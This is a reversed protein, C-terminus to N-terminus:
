LDVLVDKGLYAGEAVGRSKLWITGNPAYVNAKVTHRLGLIAVPMEDPSGNAGNVYLVIDRATISAGAEPAITPNTGSDLRGNIIIETPAQCILQTHNGLVLSEMHYTGGTLILVAKTKLNVSGYSGADLTLTEQTAMDIDQTGPLPTPFTPLVVNLPLTLPTNEDGRVTGGFNGLYNCFVDDVSSGSKIKIKDAYISVDDSFNVNKSLVVEEAGELYPGSSVNLVGVHGSNVGSATKFYVSNLAFVSYAAIGGNNKKITESAESSANDWIYNNVTISDISVTFSWDTSDAAQSEFVVEGNSDTVAEDAGTASGSWNVKVTAGEVATGNSTVTITAGAYVQSILNTKKMSISSIMLAPTTFTYEDSTTSNGAADSSKVVFYYTTGSSLAGLTMSHNSVLNNDTFTESYSGSSTGYEVISDAAEDTAWNIVAGNITVSDASVASIVPPVTDPVGMGQNQPYGNNTAYTWDSYTDTDVTLDARVITNGGSAYPNSTSGWGEPTGGSAGGEWAVADVVNDSTDYLLLTDGGNNLYPLSGYLDAEYGYLAFFGASQRAITLFTGPEIVQGAPLTYTFGTGNNDTVKWGSVDVVVESNNYLEFWEETNEDGPTDYFIESFVIKPLPPNQIQPNGNDTAYGWDSHTDTDVTVDTRVITNDAGAWPNSTSGWGEPIGQSAGGEWAVADVENGDADYLILTDGGNNLYPLSGYLDAEYGYMATFGASQRAITLYTGAKIIQGAPVTYTYGTGNNDTITWNGIDVNSVSNNYIEFWEEANEDGPTDYNVESFVIKPVNATQTQPNGNNTAFTWDSSTDTDVAVDSRVITNGSGAWPNSTSGWGEPIGASAGGEWAVADIVTDIADYLILTDGGNNLYPLSGYLDAEYGYLAMFGASQRAITLYTGANITQGAPIIYTYGTGNNDIIKWGGVDVTSSSTNYLEFWEETNEDGPTDYYVESFVVVASGGTPQVQPTGNAAATSWDAYTNTDASAETRVITSGTSASPASTSGWGEPVGGSAGGEWAAADIVDGSANKLIITDGGNNLGPISGYADADFAYLANFGASDAALTYYTGPRITAGSPITVTGGTGNNDTITWGGIDITANTTNYLEIWEEISDTGPTDYFIESFLVTTEQPVVGGTTTFTNEFSTTPQNASDASEVVYYYTTGETLGTLSLSHSTVLNADQATLTYTGTATGYKVISTAAENTTWTITASTDALGSSQVNSIVPPLDGGTFEDVYFTRPLSAAGREDPGQSVAGSANVTYSNGGDSTIIIDGVSYGAVSTLTGVPSGEETQLVLAPPATICASMALFVNEIVDMRPHYWNTSQGSGVSVCAVSPSMLNMYDSNGSSESAHHAIHAIEVGYQSLLPYAGGPMIAQSMPTEINVQSTSRGTCANDDRGGGVDGTLIFDFDGYKILLCLSRDNENNTGGAVPGSGVVSGNTAVCTATAGNGLDIVQGLAMTTLGGATTGGVAAEYAQFYSNTNDSGNDMVNLADYGGNLVETLGQYHDTHRHSLVVYDLAQSTTIGLGQLYPIIESTGKGEWGGDYLLTTGNPGVILTSQGQQVNIYHIELNQSMLSTSFVSLCLALVMTFVVKKVDFRHM